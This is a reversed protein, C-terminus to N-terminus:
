NGGNTIGELYAKMQPYCERLKEFPYDNITASFLQDVRGTPRWDFRLGQQTVTLPTSSTAEMKTIHVANAYDFASKELLRWDKASAVQEASEQTYSLLTMPDALVKNNLFDNIIADELYLMKSVVGPKARFYLKTVGPRNRPIYPKSDGGEHPAPQGEPWWEISYGIIAYQLDSLFNFVTAEKIRCSVRLQVGSNDILRITRFHGRDAGEYLPQEDAM